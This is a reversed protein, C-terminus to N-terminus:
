EDMWGDMQRDVCTRVHGGRQTSEEGEKEKKEEREKNIEEKAYFVELSSRMTSWRGSGDGGVRAARRREETSNRFNHLAREIRANRTGNAKRM